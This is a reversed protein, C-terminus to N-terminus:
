ASRAAELVQELFDSEPLAGEFQIRDNVVIKPVAMVSYQNALEPFEMSEVMEADIMTPNSLSFQHAMRVARPCYPCTPTVFVQIRAPAALNQLAAVTDSGLRSPGGMADVIDELLATFEYGGPLGYFKLALSSEGNTVVTAPTQRVKLREVLEPSDEVWHHEASVRGRSLEALEEALQKVDECYVCSVREKKSAFTLLRVSGTPPLHKQFYREVDARNEQTLMRIEGSEIVLGPAILQPTAHAVARM